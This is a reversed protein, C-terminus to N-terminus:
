LPVNGDLVLPVENPRSALRDRANKGEKAKRVQARVLLLLILSLPVLLGYWAAFVGYVWAGYLFIRQAQWVGLFVQVIQLVVISRGVWWHTREPFVGPLPMVGTNRFKLRWLMDSTVGLIVQLVLASIIIIGIIHHANSFHGTGAVSIYHLVCAFGALTMCVGLVQLAVHLPLWVVTFQYPMFSSTLVGAPIILASALAMLVIHAVLSSQPPPVSAPPISVGARMVITGWMFAHFECQYYLVGAAMAQADIVLSLNGSNLGQNTFNGLYRDAVSQSAAVVHIAFNHIGAPVTVGFTVVDGETANIRPNWDVGDVV